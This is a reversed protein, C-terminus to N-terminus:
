GKALLGAISQLLQAVENMRLTASTAAMPTRHQGGEQAATLPQLLLRQKADPACDLLPRQRGQPGFAADLQQQFSTHTFGQLGSSLIRNAHRTFDGQGQSEWAVEYPQCASFTIEKMQAQTRHGGTRSMGLRRRFEGHAQEMAPTAPLYRRKATSDAPGAAPGGAALRTGTGSHCCDIFCTFNVGDGINSFVAALDDDIVFAGSPYDFACLAEDKSDVEDGDLDPLQTGHGSYQFVLVDGPRGEKVLRELAGLIASRTAQGDLILEPSEFGLQTLTRAWLKADAVCGNLPAETYRDIGVCIARRRGAGAPAAPQTSATSPTEPPVSPPAPQLLAAIETPLEERQMWAELEALPPIARQFDEYGKIPVSDSVDLIRRLISNMTAPDDDFDGHTTAQSASRGSEAPTVSWVVGGVESPRGDLGFTRRMAPDDRVSEELGLIPTRRERELAYYILYLLSKRYIGAVDDELEYSKHMTFLTLHRLGDQGLRDNLRRIFADITIAPALFYASKFAPVHLNLATPIFHSHFISGASHGVAHLEVSDGHQACFEQLRQAVYHAGGEIDVSREAAFKMGSWIKEGPEDVLQEIIWDTFALRVDRVGREMLARQSGFLLQRLTELLGTEWIFNIPYVKNARWWALHKHAIAIGSSESVLGGHAYFVLKLPRKEARAVELERPLHEFFIADVDGPTTRLRGSESFRGQTLNVVHPTLDALLEPTIRPGFRAGREMDPSIMLPMGSEPLEAGATEGEARAAGAPDERAMDDIVRQVELYQDSFPRLERAAAASTPATKLQSRCERLEKVLDKYVVSTGPCTKGSMTNHFRLSQEDLGFHAQIRAVVELAAERQNGELRDRGRDFDGIMEIMFPGVGANGNFGRASAPPRNWNRGTWITGDPAITLHQAIDSWGMEQTHYRWMGLITEHGRYDAHSPRWTHHLHVSDIRRRFPFKQLTLQFTKLDLRHFVPTSM